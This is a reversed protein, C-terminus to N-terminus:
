ASCEGSPPSPTEPNRSAASPIALRVRPEARCPSLFFGLTEVSPVFAGATSDRCPCCFCLIAPRNKRGKPVQSANPNSDWRQFAPSNETTGEPSFRQGARCALCLGSTLRSLCGHGAFQPVSNLIANRKKVPQAGAASFHTGSGM